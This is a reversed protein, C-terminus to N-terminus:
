RPGVITSDGIWDCSITEVLRTWDFPENIPLPVRIAVTPRLSVGNGVAPCNDGPMMISYDITTGSSTSEFRNLWIGGGWNAQVDSRLIVVAHTSFDVMDGFGFPPTGPGDGIMSSDPFIILSDGVNGWREWDCQWAAEIWNRFEDATRIIQEGAGLEACPADTFYLTLPLTPDPEWTCNYTSNSRVWGFTLQLPRPIIFAAVPVAFVNPDVLPGFCDEGPSSVEYSVTTEEEGEVISRVWIYRGALGQELKIIIVINEDFDVIPAGDPWLSDPTVWGSDSITSDPIPIHGLKGLGGSCDVAFDWWEDWADQDTLIQYELQQECGYQSFYVPFFEVGPDPLGPLSDVPGSDGPGGIFPDTGNERGGGALRDLEPTGPDSPKDSNCGNVAFLTLLLLAICYSFRRSFISHSNNSRQLQISKLVSM